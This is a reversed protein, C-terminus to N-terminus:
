VCKRVALNASLNAPIFRPYSIITSHLKLSVDGLKLVSLWLYQIANLLDHTRNGGAGGRLM